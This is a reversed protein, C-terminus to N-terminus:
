GFRGKNLMGGPRSQKETFGYMEKQMEERIAKAIQEGYAKDAEPGRSGGEVAVSISPAFTMTNSSGGIMPSAMGRGVGGGDALAPVRGSNIAELLARHKSTAAANVMFEGNSALVPVRDDRPGGPGYIMGGGARRQVKPAHKSSSVEGGNALGFLNFLWGFIGGLGGGGEGVEKVEFIATLLEDFIRDSLRGIANGLAELPPVGNMIDSRFGGIFDRAADAATQMRRQQEDLQENEQHIEENLAIIRRRQEETAASGARRSAESARREADTAGILRLEEELEAILDLVAQRERQAAAAATNRSSSGFGGPPPTPPTWPTDTVQMPATRSDVIGGIRAEEDAIDALRQRKEAIAQDYRATRGTADDTISASDQQQARIEFIEKEIKLREAGLDKLKQDLTSTRQNEFARFGDIFESLSHAASVIASKLAMGVTNAIANFQRDVEAAKKILEDDLVQGLDHAASITKRIGAAGQDLLEVFREGASGGFLEDSIRIQAAKDTKGLRDIIELLLASPDKLKVKLDAASYGLRMFAESASGKGTQAFEDGRLSLEKLGDTLADVPIRAQEAVYRWEQFAKASVGARKAEDGIQAIGKAVQGVQGIMGAIGGAAVGALLGAGFNKFGAGVRAAAQGMTAELRTATVKARNEVRQFNDNAVKGAKKFNREFDRIRAELAVVLQETETAM